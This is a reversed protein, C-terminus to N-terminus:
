AAHVAALKAELDALRALIASRDVAMEGGKLESVIELLSPLSMRDDVSKAPVDIHLEVASGNQRLDATWLGGRTSRTADIANFAEIEAPTLDDDRQRTGCFFTPRKLQPKPRVLAGEAWQFPGRENYNPNEKPASREALLELAKAGPQAATLAALQAQLAEIQAQVDATENKAM